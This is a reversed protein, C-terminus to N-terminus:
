RRLGEGPLKKGAISGRCAISGEDLAIEFDSRTVEMAAAFPRGARASSLAIRGAKLALPTVVYAWSGSDPALDRDTGNATSLAVNFSAPSGFRREPSRSHRVM